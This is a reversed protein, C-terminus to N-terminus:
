SSAFAGPKITLYEGSNVAICNTCFPSFHKTHISKRLKLYKNNNWVASLNDKHINGLIIKSMLDYCCPIIDGNWRITMTNEVHDCYNITETNPRYPIHGYIADNIEMQPWRIAWCCIYDAIGGAYKGSFERILYGPPDPIDQRDQSDDTKLFQTNAIFIQPTSANKEQKVEILRKIKSVVTHFDCNRRLFNNEEPSEGDLSFKIMDLGSAIIEEILDDTLLM